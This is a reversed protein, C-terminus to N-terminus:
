RRYCRHGAMEPLRDLRGAAWRYEVTVNQGEVFGTETL